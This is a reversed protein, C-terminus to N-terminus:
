ALEEALIEGCLAVCEDCIAEGAGAALGAVRPRSKGCFSCSAAGADAGVPTLATLPTAAAEGTAIVQHAKGVCQDCICAGSGAILKTVQKQTKGCFSCVLLDSRSVVIDVSARPQRNRLRGVTPPVHRAPTATMM